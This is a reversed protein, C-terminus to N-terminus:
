ASPSPLEGSKRLPMRSIVRKFIPLHMIVKKLKRILNSLVWMKTVTREENLETKQLLDNRYSIFSGYVVPLLLAGGRLLEEGVDLLTKDFALDTM